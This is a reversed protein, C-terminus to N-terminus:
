DSDNTEGKQQMKRTEADWWAPRHAYQHAILAELDEMTEFGDNGRPGATRGTPRKPPYLCRIEPNDHCHRCLGRGSRSQNRRGCHVCKM